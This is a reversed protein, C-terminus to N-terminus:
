ECLGTKSTVGVTITLVVLLLLTRHEKGCLRLLYGAKQKTQQIILDSRKM